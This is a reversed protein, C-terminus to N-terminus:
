LNYKDLFENATMVLRDKPYHKINGTILEAECFVAVEYFKKDSEDTFHIDLPPADAYSGKNEFLDIM